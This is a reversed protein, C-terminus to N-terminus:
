ILPGFAIIAGVVMLLLSLFWLSIFFRSSVLRPLVIKEQNHLYHRRAESRFLSRSRPSMIKDRVGDQIQDTSPKHLMLEAQYISQLYIM